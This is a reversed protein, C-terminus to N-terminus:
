GRFKEPETGSVYSKNVQILSLVQVYNNKKLNKFCLEDNEEWLKHTLLM